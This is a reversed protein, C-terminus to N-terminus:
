QIHLPADMREHLVRVILIEEQKLRYYIVHKAVRFYRYDIGNHRAHKGFEPQERLGSIATGLEDYYRHAQEIGWQEFTYLWINELDIEALRSKRLDPM